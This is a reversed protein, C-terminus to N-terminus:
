ISVWERKRALYQFKEKFYADWEPVRDYQHVIAYKRNGFTTYLGEKKNSLGLSHKTGEKMFIPHVNLIWKDKFQDIKNPDAITGAQIAYEHDANFEVLYDSWPKSSLIINLAAQDAGGGGPVHVYPASKGIYYTQILLSHFTSGIGGIVGANYIPKNMMHDAIHPFCIKMNSAGWPEDKYYLNEMSAFIKGHSYNDNEQFREIVDFPDSQFVVDKVDTMIVRSDYTFDTDTDLYRYAYLFRDLCVNFNEIDKYYVFWNPKVDPKGAFVIYVGHDMLFQVTEEDKVNFVIMVKKAKTNLANLSALWPEIEKLGYNTMSGIIFDTM